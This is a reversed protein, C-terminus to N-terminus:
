RRAVRSWKVAEEQGSQSRAMAEGIVAQATVVVCVECLRLGGVTGRECFVVGVEGCSSCRGESAILRVMSAREVGCVGADHVDSGPHLAFTVEWFPEVTPFVRVCVVSTPGGGRLRRARKV